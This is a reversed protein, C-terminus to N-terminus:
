GLSLFSWPICFLATAPHHHQPTVLPNVLDQLLKLEPLGLPLTAATLPSYVPPKYTSLSSVTTVGFSASVYLFQILEHRSVFYCRRLFVQILAQLYVVVTHRQFCDALPGLRRQVGSVCLFVALM